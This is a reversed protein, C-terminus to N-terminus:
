GEAPAAPESSASGEGPAEPAPPAALPTPLLPRLALHARLIQHIRATNQISEELLTQLLDVTGDHVGGPTPYVLQMQPQPQLLAAPIESLPVEGAGNAAAVEAETAAKAAAVEDGVKAAVDEAVEVATKKTRPTM